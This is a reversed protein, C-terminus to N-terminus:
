THNLTALKIKSIKVTFEDAIRYVDYRMKERYVQKKKSFRKLSLAMVNLHLDM